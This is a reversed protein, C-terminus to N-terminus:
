RGALILSLGAMCRQAMGRKRSVKDLLKTSTTDTRHGPKNSKECSLANNNPHSLEVEKRAVERRRM